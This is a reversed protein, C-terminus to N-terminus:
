YDKAFGLFFLKNGDGQPTPHHNAFDANVLRILRQNDDGQPTPSHKAIADVNHAYVM